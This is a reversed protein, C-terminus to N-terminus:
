IYFQNVFSKSKKSNAASLQMSSLSHIELFLVKLDSQIIDMNYGQLSLLVQHTRFIIVWGECFMLIEDCNYFTFRVSKKNGSMFVQKWESRTIVNSYLEGSEIKVYWPMFIKEPIEIFISTFNALHFM